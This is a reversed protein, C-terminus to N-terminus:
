WFGMDGDAFSTQILDFNDFTQTHTPPVFYGEFIPSVIPQLWFPITVAPSVILNLIEFELQLELAPGLWWDKTEQGAGWHDLMKIVPVARHVISFIVGARLNADRVSTVEFIRYEVNQEKPQFRYILEAGVAPPDAPFWPFNLMWEITEPSRYFFNGRINRILNKAEPGLKPVTQWRYQGRNVISLAMKIVHRPLTAPKGNNGRFRLKGMAKRHWNAASLVNWRVRQGVKKKYERFGLSRFMKIAGKSNGAGVLPKAVHSGYEVLKAALGTGRWEDAFECTTTFFIKKDAGNVRVISPLVGFYGVIKGEIRVLFLAPDNLEMTPNLLICRSRTRNIPVVEGARADSTAMQALKDLDRYLIVELQANEIAEIKKKKADASIHHEGLTDNRKRSNIM